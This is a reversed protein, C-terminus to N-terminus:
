SARTHRELHARAHRWDHVVRGTRLRPRFDYGRRRDSPSACARGGSVPAIPRAALVDPGAHSRRRLDHTQITAIVILRSATFLKAFPSTPRTAPCAAMLVWACADADPRTTARCSM